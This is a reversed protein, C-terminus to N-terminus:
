ETGTLRDRRKKRPTEGQVQDSKRCLPSLLRLSVPRNHFFTRSAAKPAQPGFPTQISARSASPTTTKTTSNAGPGHQRQSSCIRVPRASPLSSGNTMPGRGPSPPGSVARSEAMAITGHPEATRHSLAIADLPKRNRITAELLLATANTAFFSPSFELPNPVPLCLPTRSPGHADAIPPAFSALASPAVQASGSTARAKLSLVPAALPLPPKTRCLPPCPLM